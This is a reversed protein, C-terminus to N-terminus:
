KAWNSNWEFHRGRRRERVNMGNALVCLQNKVHEGFTLIIM